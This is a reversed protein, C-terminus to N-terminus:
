FRNNQLSYKSVFGASDTVSGNTNKISKFINIKELGKVTYGDPITLSITRTYKHPYYNVIKTQRPKTNYLESQEGILTGVKVIINDGANELIKTTTFDADLIM